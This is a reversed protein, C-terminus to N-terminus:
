HHDVRPPTVSERWRVDGAIKMPESVAVAGGGLRALLLDGAAEGMQRYPLEVTTLSPYLTESILRYDDYGAVSIDEPVRIGRSRLLGYLQLALRDNGVCIVTPPDPLALVSSLAFGLLRRSDDASGAVIDAPRILAEDVSLGAAEQADVYGAKRQRTAVLEAPLTLYAIRRHGIEILRGVLAKQGSYDDPVVAPTGAEDFGNVIVVEAGDSRAPLEIPQHYPAVYFVGEVRHERFTRLLGPIAAPDGGTDAMLLTKGASQLRSQIGQIAYIEPLGSLEPVTPAGSIAGSIIGVLGSRNSRMTRAALSPVYGLEEIAAEVAARTSKKVPADRNLVRSVTKASVEARKAVDYITPM